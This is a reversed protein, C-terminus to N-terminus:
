RTVELSRLQAEPDRSATLSSGVLVAAAGANKLAEVQHRSNIGSMVIIPKRSRPAIRLMREGKQTDMSMDHLNRQNIGILDAQSKLANELEMEDTVELVTELGLSHARNLLLELNKHILDSSFVSEILLVAIAGNRYAALLQREDVVIDKMLVPLGSKSASRLVSLDGGFHNPETLVSIAAAGGSRYARILREPDHISIGKMSPSSLKVEAIIPFSAHLTIAKSLSHRVLQLGSGPRDYYGSEVLRIANGILKELTDAM